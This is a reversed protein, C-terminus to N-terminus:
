PDRNYSETQHLLFKTRIIWPHKERGFIMKYEDKSFLDTITDLSRNHFLFMRYTETLEPNIGVPNLGPQKWWEILWDLKEWDRFVHGFKMMCYYYKFRSTWQCVNFWMTKYQQYTIGFLQENPDQNPWDSVVRMRNIQFSQHALATTWSRISHDYWHTEVSSLRSLDGMEILKERSSITIPQHIQGLVHQPPLVTININTFFGPLGVEIKESSRLLWSPTWNEKFVTWSTNDDYYETVPANREHDFADVVVMCNKYYAIQMHVDSIFPFEIRKSPINGLKPMTIFYRSQNKSYLCSGHPEVASLFPSGLICDVPLDSIHFRMGLSYNELLLTGRPVEYQFATNLNGLGIASGFSLAWYKAPIKDKHLLNINSGTDILATLSFVEQCIELQIKIYYKQYKVQLVQMGPMGQM